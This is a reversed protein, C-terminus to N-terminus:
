NSNSKEIRIPVPLSTPNGDVNARLHFLWDQPRAIPSAYIFFEQKSLAAPILLGNLGINAVFVGHPLNRGCDENGFGLDNAFAKRNIEVFARITEGPKIKLPNDLTPQHLGDELYIKVEVRQDEVRKVKIPKPLEKEVVKDGVM